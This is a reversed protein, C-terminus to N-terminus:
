MILLMLMAKWHLWVSIHLLTIKSLNNITESEQKEIAKEAKNNERDFADSKATRPLPKKRQRWLMTHM